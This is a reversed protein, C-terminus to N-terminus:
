CFLAALRMKPNIELDYQSLVTFPIWVNFVLTKDRHAKYERSTMIQSCARTSGFFYVGGRSVRPTRIADDFVFANLHYGPNDGVSFRGVGALTQAFLM